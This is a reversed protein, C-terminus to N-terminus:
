SKFFDIEVLRRRLKEICRAKTPGISGLPIGQTQAIEEYSAPQSRFLSKLLDSCRGGLRSMLDQLLLNTSYETVLAEPSPEKSPLNLEPVADLSETLRVRRRQHIAHRTATTIAWSRLAGASSVTTLSRYLSVFTLQFVDAQDEGTVGARRIAWYVSPSLEEVLRSWSRADGERCRRLLVDWDSTSIGESM